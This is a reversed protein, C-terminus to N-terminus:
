IRFDQDAFPDLGNRYRYSAKSIEIKFHRAWQSLSKTQGDITVRITGSKNNAQTEATAWRCNDPEYNGNPDIRDLTMDVPRIGMDALFFAFENWRDCVKIGRGGYNPYDRQRPNRCRAKMDQWSKYTVSGSHSHITNRNRLTDRALCGCSKTHGTRVDKISADLMEGCVCEFRWLHNGADRREVLSVATLRGFVYGAYDKLPRNRVRGPFKETHIAMVWALAM